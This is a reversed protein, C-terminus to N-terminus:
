RATFRKTDSGGNAKRSQPPQETVQVPGTCLHPHKSYLREIGGTLVRVNTYGRDILHTAVESALRPTSLVDNADYVIVVRGAM